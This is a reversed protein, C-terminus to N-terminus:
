SHLRNSFFFLHLPDAIRNNANVSCQQGDALIAIQFYAANPPLTPPALPIPRHGVPWPNASKSATISGLLYGFHKGSHQLFYCQPVAQATQM